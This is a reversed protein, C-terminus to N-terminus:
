SAPGTAGLEKDKAFAAEAETSRGLAKLAICKNYWAPVLRPNLRIAEDRTKKRPSWMGPFSIM